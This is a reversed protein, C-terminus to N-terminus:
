VRGGSTGSLYAVLEEELQSAGEVGARDAKRLFDCIMELANPNQEEFTEESNDEECAKLQEQVAWGLGSWEDALELFETLNV